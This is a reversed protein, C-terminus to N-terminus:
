DSWDIPPDLSLRRTRWGAARDPDLGLLACARRTSWGCDVADDLLDLLGAKVTADV